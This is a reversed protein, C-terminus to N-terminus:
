VSLDLTKLKKKPTFAMSGVEGHFSHKGVGETAKELVRGQEEKKGGVEEYTAFLETFQDYTRPVTLCDQVVQPKLDVVPLFPTAYAIEGKVKEVFLVEEDVEIKTLAHSKVTCAGIGNLARICWKNGTGILGGCMEEGIMDPRVCICVNGQTVDKQDKFPSAKPSRFSVELKAPVASARDFLGAPSEEFEGRERDNTEGSENRGPTLAGKLTAFSFQTPQNNAM